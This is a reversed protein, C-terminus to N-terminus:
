EMYGIVTLLTAGDRYYGAQSALPTERNAERKGMFRGSQLRSQMTVICSLPCHFTTISNLPKRFTELRYPVGHFAQLLPLDEPVVFAVRIELWQGRGDKRV